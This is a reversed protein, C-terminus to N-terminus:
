HTVISLIFPGMYASTSYIFHDPRFMVICTKGPWIAPSRDELLHYLVYIIVRANFTCMNIGNSPSPSYLYALHIWSSKIKMFHLYLFSFHQIEDGASSWLLGPSFTHCHTVKCLSSQGTTSGWILHHPLITFHTSRTRCPSPAERKIPQHSYMRSSISKDRRRHRSGVM